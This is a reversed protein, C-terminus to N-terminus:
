LLLSRYHLGQVTEPTEQDGRIFLEFSIEHAQHQPNTLYDIARTLLMTLRFLMM